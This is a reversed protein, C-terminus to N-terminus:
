QNELAVVKASLEQIAKILPIVFDGVSLAQIGDEDETWGGFDDVEATDLASKVEQAIMGYNILEPKLPTQLEGEKNYRRVDESQEEGTKWQYKVARLDNVFDLGLSSDEINKKLREDSERAWTTGTGFDIWWRDTSNATGITMYSGDGHGITNYGMTISLTSDASYVDAGCGIVTNTSGTTISNGAQSGVLVNSNSNAQLLFGADRGVAVNENGTLKTGTIGQGARFGVFVNNEGTSCFQGAHFGIATNDGAGDSSEFYALSDDGIAINYDGDVSIGLANNGIAINYNGITLADLALYGMAINGAGSTLATLAQHGIAVTSDAAATTAGAM